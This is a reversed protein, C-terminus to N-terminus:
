SIGPPPIISYINPSTSLRSKSQVLASRSPRHLSQLRKDLSACGLVGEQAGWLREWLVTLTRGPGREPSSCSEECSSFPLGEVLAQMTGSPGPSHQSVAPPASLATHWWTTGVAEGGAPAPGPTFHHGHVDRGPCPLAAGEGLM